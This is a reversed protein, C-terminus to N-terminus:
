NEPSATVPSSPPGSRIASSSSAPMTSSVLAAGPAFREYEDLPAGPEYAYAQFTMALDYAFVSPIPPAPLPSSQNIAVVLSRRWAETGNCQLLLVEQVNRNADQRIQVQCIFATEDAAQAPVVSEDVPTRPRIWAREIRASIQSRYRGAMLVQAAADGSDAPNSSGSAEPADDTVVVVEPSAVEIPVKALLPALAAISIPPGSDGKQTSDLNLLLLEESPAAHADVRVAGIGETERPRHQSTCWGVANFVLGHVLLTGLVGLLRSWGKFREPTEAEKPVPQWAELPAVEFPAPTSELAKAYILPSFQTSRVGARATGVPTKTKSVSGRM